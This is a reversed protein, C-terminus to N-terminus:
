EVVGEVLLALEEVVSQLEALLAQHRTGGFAEVLSRYYWITEESGVSFRSWLEDGVKRHDSLMSRANHLKDAMSVLHVGDSAHRVHEIYAEKRETWPPKPYGYADTCGDVLRAVDEGFRARITELMEKGGQDEVADHLLAAIAEEEGGGYELVIACVAMLHAFYPTETGKRAQASHVELAFDLAEQFRPGLPRPASMTPTVKNLKRGM